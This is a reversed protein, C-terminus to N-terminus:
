ASRGATRRRRLVAGGLLVLSSGLLVMSSPEPTYNLDYTHNADLAVVTQGPQYQVFFSSDSTTGYRNQDYSQVGAVSPFYKPQWYVWLVDSTYGSGQDGVFYLVTQWLSQNWLGTSDDSLTTPDGNIVVLFGAGVANDSLLAGGQTEFPTLDIFNDYTGNDYLNCTFQTFLM